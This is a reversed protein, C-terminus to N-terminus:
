TPVILRALRSLLTSSSVSLSGAATTSVVRSSTSSSSLDLRSNPPSKTLSIARIYPDHVHDVRPYSSRYEPDPDSHSFTFTNARPRPYLKVHFCLPPIVFSFPSLRPDRPKVLKVSRDPKPGVEALPTKDQLFHVFRSHGERMGGGDVTEKGMPYLRSTGCTKQPHYSPSSPSPFPHTPKSDYPGRHGTKGPLGGGSLLRYRRPGM